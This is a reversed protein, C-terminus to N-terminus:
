SSPRASKGYLRFAWFSFAAAVITIILFWPDKALSNREQIVRWVHVLALLGFLIGTTLLYARM